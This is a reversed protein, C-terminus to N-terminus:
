VKGTQMFENYNPRFLHKCILEIGLVIINFCIGYFLFYFPSNLVTLGLPRQENEELNFSKPKQGLTSTRNQNNNLLVCRKDGSIFKSNHKHNKNNELHKWCEFDEWDWKEWLSIVKKEWITPLGAEVM